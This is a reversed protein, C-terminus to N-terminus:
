ENWFWTLAPQLAAISLLIAEETRITRSGQKPCTNLYRHFLVSPDDEQIGADCQVSEELGHVGGFVIIAHKFPAIAFDPTYISEGRESTGVKLDYGNKHPCESFVESLSGALRTAYGWYLGHQRPTMPSVVKGKYRGKKDTALEKSEGLDVTIRVNPSLLKNIRCEQRLGVNVWSGANKRAQTPRKLVVGERFRCWEDIRMHHPTDLPALLGVHRLEPSIEFFAKRLYQPTELYQLLRALFTDVDEIRNGGRHGAIPPTGESFVVVEDIRFVAAIRAIQGALHARLEPSQANAIISGPLAIAVTPRSKKLSKGTKKSKSEGEVKQRKQNPAESESADQKRKKKKKKSKKSKKFPNANFIGAAVGSAEAM